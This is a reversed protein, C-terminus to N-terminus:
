ERPPKAQRIVSGNEESMILISYEVVGDNARNSQSVYDFRGRLDTYGDKHFRVAGNSLQAYVKVYAKALPLGTKEVRVQVQGYNEFMGISLSNTFLPKARTQDGAVVEILVNKNQLSEPITLKKVGQGKKSARLKVETTMNPRILSFGELDNQAFPSRSFLQEIDMEYFNVQAQKVNQFTLKAQDGEVELDISESKAALETQQQDANEEDTAKVAGENIQDVQDLIEQFRKRWHDVPYEAWKSAKKAASAPDERYFDLYADCYDYQIQYNLNKSKVKSFHELASDIRDQLLMYYTLVLHSDDDLDPRYALTLLLQRYQKAFDPNLIRRQAGLQNTRANVLPWYERHQYWNRQVPDITVLESDFVLGLNGSISNAYTMFDRITEVDDHKIAYAWLVPSYVFRKRLTAIARDYFKKNAMRFAIKNLDLRQVNERELFEIM